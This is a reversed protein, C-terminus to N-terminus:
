MSFMIIQIMQISIIKLGNCFLLTLGSEKLYHRTQQCRFILKVGM